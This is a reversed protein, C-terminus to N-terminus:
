QYCYLAIWVTAIHCFFNLLLLMLYSLHKSCSHCFLILHLYNQVRDVNLIKEKYMNMSFIELNFWCRQRTNKKWVDVMFEIVRSFSLYTIKLCNVNWGDSRKINISSLLPGQFISLVVVGFLWCLLSALPKKLCINRQIMGFLCIELM